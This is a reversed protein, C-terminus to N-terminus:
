YLNFNYELQMWTSVPKGDKLAPSFSIARAAILCRETMGHPLRKLIEVRTVKGTKSFVARLIVTGRVGFVRASETYSPEPKALVRPREDVDKNTFIPGDDEVVRGKPDGYQRMREVQQSVTFSSLFREREWPGDATDAALLIFIRRHAVFIQATGSLQGLVVSYERGPLPNVPLEKVYAIGTRRNVNSLVTDRAQKLLTQWFLDAAVDLYSDEGWGIEPKREVLSWVAYSASASGTTYWFGTMNVHDYTATVQEAKPEHPMSIHFSGDSASFDVWPARQQAFVVLGSASAILLCCVTLLRRM